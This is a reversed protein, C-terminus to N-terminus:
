GAGHTRSGPGLRLLDSFDELWYDPEEAELATRAYPGWLVAATRTGAARGAKMDWPSDGVFLVQAAEESLGLRELALLVPEPDPKGHEVDDASVLLEFRGALGCREMTREAITRRKSTVVALRTGSAGLAAVAEVAGPYPRVVEDHLGTQFTVYTELM